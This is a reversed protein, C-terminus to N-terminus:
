ESPKAQVSKLISVAQTLAKDVVAADEAADASARHLRKAVLAAPQLANALQDLATRLRTPDDEAMEVGRGFIGEEDYGM